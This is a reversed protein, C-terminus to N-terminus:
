IFSPRYGTTMTQKAQLLSSGNNSDSGGAGDVYLIPGDAASVTSLSLLLFLGM